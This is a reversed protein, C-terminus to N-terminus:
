RSHSPRPKVLNSRPKLPTCELPTQSRHAAPTRIRQKAPKKKHAPDFFRGCGRTQASSLPAVLLRRPLIYFVFMSKTRQTSGAGVCVCERVRVCPLAATAPAAAKTSSLALWFGRLRPHYRLLYSEFLLIASELPARGSISASSSSTSPGRPLTGRSTSCSTAAEKCLAPSIKLCVSM